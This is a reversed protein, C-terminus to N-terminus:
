EIAVAGPREYREDGRDDADGGGDGGGARGGGGVRLRERAACSAGRAGWLSTRGLRRWATESPQAARARALGAGARARGHPPHPAGLASPSGSSREWTSM